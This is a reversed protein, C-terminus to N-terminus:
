MIKSEFIKAKLMGLSPMGSVRVVENMYLLPEILNMTEPSFRKIWIRIPGTIYKTCSVSMSIFVKCVTNMLYYRTKYITTQWNTGKRKAMTNDTRRPNQLNQNGRHYRWVIRQYRKTPRFDLIALDGHHINMYLLPEILNMTEPSFRKIWIRIPGTIYKTCSVSMSIFVFM